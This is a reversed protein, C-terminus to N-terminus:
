AWSLRHYQKMAPSYTTASNKDSLARMLKAPKETKQWFLQFAQGFHVFHVAHVFHVFHGSM